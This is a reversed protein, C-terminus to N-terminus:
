LLSINVSGGIKASTDHAAVETPDLATCSTRLWTLGQDKSDRRCRERSGSGTWLASGRQWLLREPDYRRDVRRQRSALRSRSRQRDPQVVRSSFIRAASFVHVVQFLYCYRWLPEVPGRRFCSQAVMRHM